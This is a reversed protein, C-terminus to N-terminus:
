ANNVLIDVNQLERPLSELLGRVEEPNTVDLKVPYVKAAAYKSEIEMKLEELANTRRATAIVNIHGPAAARAFEIATARGIGM